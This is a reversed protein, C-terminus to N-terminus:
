PSVAAAGEAHILERASRHEGRLRDWIIEGKEADFQNALVGQVKSPAIPVACADIGKRVEASETWALVAGARGGLAFAESVRPRVAIPINVRVM